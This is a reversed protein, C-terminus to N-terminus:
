CAVDFTPTTLCNYAVLQSRFERYISNRGMTKDNGKLRACTYAPVTYVACDQQHTVMGEGDTYVGHVFHTPYRSQRGFVFQFILILGDYRLGRKYPSVLMVVNSLTGYLISTTSYLDFVGCVAQRAHM